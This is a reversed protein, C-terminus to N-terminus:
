GARYAVMRRDVAGLRVHEARLQLPRHDHARGGVNTVPGCALSQGTLGTFTGAPHRDAPRRHEGSRDPPTTSTTASVSPRVGRWECPSRRRRRELVRRRGPGRGNLQPVHGHDLRRFHARDNRPRAPDHRAPHLHAPQRRPRLQQRTDSAAIAAASAGRLALRLILTNGVPVGSAPISVNLSTSGCSAQGINKVFAPGVTVGAAAVDGGSGVAYITHSGNSTGAPLVSVAARREGARVAHHQRRPDHGHHPQRAPLDRDPGPGLQRDDWYPHRPRDARQLLFPEPDPDVTVTSSQASEAGSWLGQRPTVSYRWSGAPPRPAPSLQSPRIAPAASARCPAPPTTASSWTAPWPPAAPFSSQAWSVTVSRNSRSTTPTNGAPM